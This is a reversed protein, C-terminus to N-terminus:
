PLTIQPLFVPNLGNDGYDRAIALAFPQVGGQAVQYANVTVTYVGYGAHPLRIGEVNNCIDWM